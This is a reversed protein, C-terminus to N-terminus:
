STSDSPPPPPPPPAATSWAQEPPPPPPAGAPLPPAPTSMMPPQFMGPPAQQWPAAVQPTAQQWPTAVQSTAQQWPTAVQMAAQQWPASGQSVAQQWPQTSTPPASDASSVATPLQAGMAPQPIPLLPAHAQPMAWPIPFHGAPPMFPQGMPMQGPFGPLPPRMPNQMWPPQSGMGSHHHRNRNMMNDGSPKAAPKASGPVSEGLEKMLSLYESDMKAKDTVTTASPAVTSLDVRCDSAIHGGGGCRECIVSSTVNTGTSCEWDRHGSMGCNRCKIIDLPKFTGNLEALQQLQLKKLDNDNGPVDIGSQIINNILDVGKKVTEPTYGTILAHLPEDEGPQPLLSRGVKGDKTAGKGRIMIKTESDRELQKLTHGRPGILLGVFNTEPHDDQPIFVKDEFKKTPTKYDVPPRYEPNLNTAQQVLEHREEELKKRARVDRTNLRKGDHSYIPEPSPSREAPDLSLDFEGTRLQRSISEIKLHMLYLKQEDEKMNAPLVTPLGPLVMKTSEESWRSKRAKKKPQDGPFLASAARKAALLHKQLEPDKSGGDSGSMKAALIPHLRSIPTTNAGTAM